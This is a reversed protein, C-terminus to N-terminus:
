TLMRARVIRRPRKISFSFNGISISVPV